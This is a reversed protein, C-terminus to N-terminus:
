EKKDRERERDHHNNHDDHDDHNHHNHRDHGREIDKEGERLAIRHVNEDKNLHIKM